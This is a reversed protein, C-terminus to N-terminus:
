VPKPYFVSATCGATDEYTKKGRVTQGPKVPRGITITEMEKGHATQVVVTVKTGTKLIKNSTNKVTVPGAFEKSAITCSLAVTTGNAKALAQGAALAIFGAAAIAFISKTSM